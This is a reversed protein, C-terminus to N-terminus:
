PWMPRSSRPTVHSFVSRTSASRSASFYLVNSSTAFAVDELFNRQAEHRAMRLAAAVNCWRPVIPAGITGSGRFRSATEAAPPAEGNEVGRLTNEALLRIAGCRALPAGRSPARTAASFPTSNIAHRACPVCSQSAKSLWYPCLASGSKPRRKTKHAHSPLM